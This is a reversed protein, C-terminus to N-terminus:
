GEESFFEQWQERYEILEVALAKLSDFPVTGLASDGGGAEGIYTEIGVLIDESHETDAALTRLTNVNGDCLELNTVWENTFKAVDVHADDSLADFTDVGFIEELFVTIHDFTAGYNETINSINDLAKKKFSPAGMKVPEKKGPKVPVKKAGPKVPVKKAGPKVPVKKVDPKALNKEASGSELEAMVENFLDDTLGPKRKWIGKQTQGRNSTHIREDWVVGEGKKDREPLDGANDGANDTGTIDGADVTNEVTGFVETFTAFKASSLLQDLKSEIRELIGDSM